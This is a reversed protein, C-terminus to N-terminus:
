ASRPNGYNQGWGAGFEYTHHREWDSRKYVFTTFGLWEGSIDDGGVQGKEKKSLVPQRNLLRDEHNLQKIIAMELEPELFQESEEQAIATINFLPLLLFAVVALTSLFYLPRNERIASAQNNINNFSKM